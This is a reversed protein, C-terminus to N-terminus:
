DYLSQFISTTNENHFIDNIERFEKASITGFHQIPYKQPLPLIAREIILSDSISPVSKTKISYVASHVTKNKEQQINIKHM